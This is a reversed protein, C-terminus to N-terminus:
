GNDVQELLGNDVELGESEVEMEQSLVEPMDERTCPEETVVRLRDSKARPQDQAVEPKESALDPGGNGAAAGKAVPEVKPSSNTDDETFEVIIVLRTQRDTYLLWLRADDELAAHKESWGIECVVAPFDADHQM